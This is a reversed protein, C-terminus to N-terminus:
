RGCFLGTVDYHCVKIKYETPKIKFLYSLEVYLQLDPDSLLDKRSSTILKHKDIIREQGKGDDYWKIHDPLNKSIDNYYKQIVEDSFWGIRIM